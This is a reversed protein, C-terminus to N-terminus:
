SGQHRREVATHLASPRPPVPYRHRSDDQNPRAGRLPPSGNRRGRGEQDRKVRGDVWSRSIPSVGAGFCARPPKPTRQECPWGGRQCSLPGLKNARAREAQERTGRDARDHQRISGSPSAQAAPEPREAALPAPPRKPRRPHLASRDRGKWILRRVCSPPGM